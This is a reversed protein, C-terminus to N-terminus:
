RPKIVNPPSDLLNRLVAVNGAHWASDLARVHRGIRKGSAKWNPDGSRRLATIVDACQEVRERIRPELEALEPSTVDPLTYDSYPLSGGVIHVGDPEFFVHHGAHNAHSECRYAGDMESCRADIELDMPGAKCNPCYVDAATGNEALEVAFREGCVCIIFETM